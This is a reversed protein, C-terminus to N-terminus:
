IGPYGIGHRVGSSGESGTASPGAARFRPGSAGAGGRELTGRPVDGWANLRAACLPFRARVGGRSRRGDGRRRSPPIERTADSRAAAQTSPALRQAALRVGRRRAGSGRPRTTVDRAHGRVEQHHLVVGQDPPRERGLEAAETVADPLGLADRRRLPLQRRLREVHDEDVVSQGVPGAEVHHLLDLLALRAHGAEHDGRVAGDLVRDLGHAPAGERVDLLGDVGVLELHV